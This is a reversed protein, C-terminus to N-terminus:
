RGIIAGLASAYRAAGGVWRQVVVAATAMFNDEIIASNCGGASRFLLEYAIIRQERDLIPQRGLLVSNHTRSSNETTVASKRSM